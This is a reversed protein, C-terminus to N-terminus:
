YHRSTLLLPQLQDKAHTLGAATQPHATDHTCLGPSRASSECWHLLQTRCAWSAACLKGFPHGNALVSTRAGTAPPFHLLPPFAAPVEHHLRHLLLRLSQYSDPGRCRPPIMLMQNILEAVHWANGICLVPYPSCISVLICAVTSYGDSGLERGEERAPGLGM